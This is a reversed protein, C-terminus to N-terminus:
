GSATATGLLRLELGYTEALNHLSNMQEATAAVNGLRVELVRAKPKEEVLRVWAEPKDNQISIIIIGGDGM